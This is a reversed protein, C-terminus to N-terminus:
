YAIPKTAGLGLVTSRDRVWTFESLFTSNSPSHLIPSGNPTARNRDSINTRWRLLSRFPDQPTSAGSNRLRFNTQTTPLHSQPCLVIRTRQAGGQSTRCIAPPSLM